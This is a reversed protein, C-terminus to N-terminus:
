SFRASRMAVEAGSGLLPHGKSELQIIKGAADVNATTTVFGMINQDLASAPYRLDAFSCLCTESATEQARANTLVGAAILVVFHVVSLRQVSGNYCLFGGATRGNHVM